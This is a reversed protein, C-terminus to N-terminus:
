SPNWQFAPSRLIASGEVVGLPNARRLLETGHDAPRVLLLKRSPAISASKRARRCNATVTPNWKMKGGIEMPRAQNIQAASHIPQRRCSRSYSRIPRNKALSKAMVKATPTALPMTISNWNPVL